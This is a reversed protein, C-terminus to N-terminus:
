HIKKNKKIKAEIETTKRDLYEVIATQESELPLPLYINSIQEASVAKFTSGTGLSNLEENLITWLYYQFKFFNNRIACLGRGIGYKKNAINVAGIPARVSALVDNPEAMKKPFSCWNEEHPYIAGFEANGQLFPVGKGNKNCEKSDPSQGMIIINEYKAKKVEWHEPIEGIWPIGSDKMKVNPNIGKTVAKNIIATKEEEYLEILREKKEILADIEATKRDLYEAIATQELLPPLPIFFNCMDEANLIKVVNGNALRVHESESAFIMYPAFTSDILRNFTLSNIQQNTTLHCGAIGIKGISGICCVLVSRKPVIKAFKLGLLSIKEKSNTILKFSGLDDPKIWPMGDESYNEPKSKSPTNGTQIKALYKLRKIEWHEPIEGIWAVGSDKYKEYMRLGM